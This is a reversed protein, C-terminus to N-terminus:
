EGTKTPEDDGYSQVIQKYWTLKRAITRQQVRLEAADCGRLKALLAGADRHGLDEALDNLIHKQEQSSRAAVFHLAALVGDNHVMVPLKLAITRYKKWVGPQAKRKQVHAFAQEADSMTKHDRM